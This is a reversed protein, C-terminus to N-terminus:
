YAVDLIEMGLGIMVVATAVLAIKHAVYRPKLKKVLKECHKELDEGMKRHAKTVNKYKSYANWVNTPSFGYVTRVPWSAYISAAGVVALGVLVFAVGVKGLCDLGTSGTGPLLGVVLAVVVLVASLLTNSRQRLAEYAACDGDMWHLGSEYTVRAVLRQVEKRPKSSM